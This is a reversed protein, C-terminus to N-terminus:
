SRPRKKRYYHLENELETIRDLLDLIIAIGDLNIGLDRRLREIKRIRPIVNLDFRLVPEDILPDILGTRFLQAVMEASFGAFRCLDEITLPSENAIQEYIMIEFKNRM